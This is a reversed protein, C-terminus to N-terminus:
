RARAYRLEELLAAARELDGEDVAVKLAERLAAESRQPTGDAPLTRGATGSWPDAADLPRPTAHIKATAAQPVYPAESFVRNVKAMEPAGLQVHPGPLAGAMATVDGRRPTETQGQPPPTLVTAPSKTVAGLAQRVPYAGAISTLSTVTPEPTTEVPPTLAPPEHAVQPQASAALSASMALLIASRFAFM